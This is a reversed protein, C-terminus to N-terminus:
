RSRYSILNLSAAFNSEAAFRMEGGPTHSQEPEWHQVTGKIAATHLARMADAGGLAAVARTVLEHERTETPVTTTGACSVLAALCILFPVRMMSEGRAM